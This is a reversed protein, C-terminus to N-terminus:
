GARLRAVLERLGISAEPTLEATEDVSELASRSSRLTRESAGPLRVRARAGLTRPRLGLLQLRKRLNLEQQAAQRYGLDYGNVRFFSEREVSFSQGLPDDRRWAGLAFRLRSTAGALHRPCTAADSAEDSAGASQRLCAGVLYRGAASSSLHAEVFGAPALADGAVFILWAGRSALVARNLTEARDSAGDVAVHEIRVPMRRGREHLWEAVSQGSGAHAVVLEFDLRSQRAFSEFSRDLAHVQGSTQLIVSARAPM